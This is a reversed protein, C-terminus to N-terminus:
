WERGLGEWNTPGKGPDGADLCVPGPGSAISCTNQMEKFAAWMISFNFIIAGASVSLGSLAASPFWLRGLRNALHEPTTLVATLPKLFFFHNGNGNSADLQM